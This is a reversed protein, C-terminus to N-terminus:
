SSFCMSTKGATQYLLSIVHLQGTKVLGGMFIDFQDPSKFFMIDLLKENREPATKQEEIQRKQIQSICRKAFLHAILGTGDLEILTVLDAWNTRLRKQQLEYKKFTSVDVYFLIIRLASIM